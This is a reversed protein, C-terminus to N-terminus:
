HHRELERECAAYISRVVRSSYDLRWVDTFLEALRAEDAFHPLNGFDSAVIESLSKFYIRELWDVQAGNANLWIHMSEAFHDTRLWGGTRARAILQAVVLYCLLEVQTKSPLVM